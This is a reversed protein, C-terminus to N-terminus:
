QVDSFLFIPTGSPALFQRHHKSRGTDPHCKCNQVKVKKIITSPFENEGMEADKCGRYEAAIDRM